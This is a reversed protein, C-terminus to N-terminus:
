IKQTAKTDGSNSATHTDWEDEGGAKVNDEIVRDRM